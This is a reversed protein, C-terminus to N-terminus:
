IAVPYRRQLDRRQLIQPRHRRRVNQRGGFPSAHDAKPRVNVALQQDLRDAFGIGRSLLRVHRQQRAPVAVFAAKDGHAAHGDVLELSHGCAM